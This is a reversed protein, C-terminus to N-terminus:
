KLFIMKNTVSKEKTELTCYYIGSALGSANFNINYSGETYYGDILTRIVQGLSNYITVKVNGAEEISFTIDTSPNFPNPYNTLYDKIFKTKELKQPRNDMLLEPEYIVGPTRFVDLSIPNTLIENGLSDVIILRYLYNGNKVKKDIYSYNKPFVTTGNGKVKAIQKWEFQETNPVDLRREIIFYANKYEVSTSWFIEINLSNAIRNAFFKNLKTRPTFIRMKPDGVIVDMWSLARSASYFSEALNFGETYMEFLYWVIAIANSYPEYVYGKAGTIGEEILDAILSQGYVVPKTFTRGSTSVYTEAIAGPAWSFNPKANETYLYANYDNSGFSTYGIINTRNTIFNTTNDLYSNLGKNNLLSHAYAMSNNLYPITTNWTPDQDFVFQMTTDVWVYYKSKDILNKIDTFNYGDLRTVLFIDFKAKSFKENKLFYPSVIYGSKGIKDAYSSLILTLESEVSASPSSTSTTNGRNIKLPVGKTTVIYNIQNLLGNELIYNEIQTRISNFTASDIEEYTPANIRVLNIEPINRVQAFYKGISDSISSNQNIIVLVDSYDDIRENIYNQSKVLTISLISIFFIKIALRKM